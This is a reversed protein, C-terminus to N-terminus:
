ANEFQVSQVTVDTDTFVTRSSTIAAGLTASHSNANPSTSPTWNANLNWDGSSDSRWSFSDPTVVPGSDLSSGPNDFLQTVEAVSLASHYFQVDAILAQAYRDGGEFPTRGISVGNTPDLMGTVKDTTASTNIAGDTSPMYVSATGDDERTAVMHVWRDAPSDGMTHLLEM